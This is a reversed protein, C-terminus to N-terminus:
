LTLTVGLEQCDHVDVTLEVIVDLMDDEAHSDQLEEPLEVIVM